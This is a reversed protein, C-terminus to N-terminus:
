ASDRGLLRQHELAKEIFRATHLQNQMRREAASDIAGPTQRESFAKATREIELQLCCRGIVRDHNRETRLM